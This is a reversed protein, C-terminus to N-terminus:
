VALGEDEFPAGDAHALHNHVMDWGYKDVLEDIKVALTESDVRDIEDQSWTVRSRPPPPPANRAYPGQPGREGM